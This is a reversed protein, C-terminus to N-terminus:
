ARTSAASSGRGRVMGYRSSRWACMQRWFSCRWAGLGAAVILLVIGVRASRVGEQRLTQMLCDVPGKFRGSLGETQLRVKVTDFPHGAMVLAMGSFYGGIFNRLPPWVDQRFRSPAVATVTADVPAVATSM